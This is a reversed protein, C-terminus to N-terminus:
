YHRLQDPTNVNIFSRLQPDIKRLQEEEIYRVSADELLSSPDRRGAQLRNEILPLTARPYVALLVQPVNEVVPILLADDRPQSLLFSVLSPLVFPMDVATVLAHSTRTLCLGSYLGMLPGTNPLIDTTVRVGSLAFSAAQEANRAVVIVESCASALLAALHEVFTVQRNTPLPLLAKDRGMRQSRGGALIIGTSPFM